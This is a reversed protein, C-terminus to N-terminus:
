EYSSFYHNNEQFMPVGYESYDDAMFFICDYNTRDLLEEKVLEVMEPMVYCREVRGNWMCTFQDPQYIVDYVTDPFHEDDVRNLITDIVLRQGLTTEGEAEAMTVLAILDVEEKTISYMWPEETAPVTEEQAKTTYTVSAAESNQEAEAEERSGIFVTLLLTLAFFIVMFAILVTMFIKKSTRM